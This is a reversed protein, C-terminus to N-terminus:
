GVIIIEWPGGIGVSMSEDIKKLHFPSVAWINGTQNRCPIENIQMWMNKSEVTKCLIVKAFAVCIKRGGYTTTDV